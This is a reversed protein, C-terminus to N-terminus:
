KLIIDVLDESSKALYTAGAKELEAESGYGFLVGVSALEFVNAGIIDFMRDGVMITKDLEAQKDKIGVSTLLYDLVDEKKDRTGDFSAGAIMDFYIDLGFNSIIIKAQPEPKSTAVFLRCGSEKLTKIALDMGDMILNENVGTENYYERFYKVAQETKADDFGYNESFTERLPPGIFKFFSERSEVEIGLKSLAYMFGNTIGQQPETITGDLDFIINTYKM